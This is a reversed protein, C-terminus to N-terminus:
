SAEGDAALPATLRVEAGHGPSSRISLDGRLKEARERMGFLGFHGSSLPPPHDADFGKGDDTVRLAVRGDEFAVRVDIRSARAHKIANTVAELAVRSLHNEVHPPLPRADGEASVDIRTGGSQLVAVAERLTPVLGGGNGNSNKERLDWVARHTEAQSRRVMASALQLAERARDPQVLLKDTANLQMSIGLLDQELSDHLDRAIRVREEYLTERALHDRIAATQRAVRVRLLAVWASAAIALVALGACVLLIRELTWWSPARMVNVAAPSGLLLHMSVPRGAASAAEPLPNHVCVGTVRVWSDPRLSALEAGAGPDALRALFVREGSQLVLTAGESLRSVDLVLAEMRVLRADYAPQMAQDPTVTPPAPPAAKGEARWVADELAVNTGRRDPFGVLDVRDGAALKGPPTAVWLGGTAAEVYMGKNAVALTVAGKVRARTPLGEDPDPAKLRAVDAVPLDFAPKAAEEIKVERVTPVLLRMAAAQQREPLASNFVGHLRVTAGVWQAPVTAARWNLLAAELRDRGSALTVLLADTGTPSNGAETRVSRVIAEVEVLEGHAEGAAIQAISVPRPAPLPDDGLVTIKVAEKPRGIICGGQRGPGTPGEVEVLTGPRVAVRPTDRVGAVCVGGSADQVFFFPPASGVYTVVGRVTATRRLMAQEPTLRRVADASTLPGVAAPRSSPRTAQAPARSPPAGFVLVLVVLLVRPMRVMRRSQEGVQIVDRPAIM